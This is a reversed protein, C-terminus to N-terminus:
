YMTNKEYRDLVKVMTSLFALPSTQMSTWRNAVALTSGTKLEVTDKVPIHKCTNGINGFIHLVV